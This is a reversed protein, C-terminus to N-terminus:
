LGIPNTFRHWRPLTVAVTVLRWAAPLNPEPPGHGAGEDPGSKENSGDDRPRSQGIGQESEKHHRADDDPDEGHPALVCGWQAEIAGESVNGVDGDRDHQESHAYLDARDKIQLCRGQEEVARRHQQCRPSPHPRALQERDRVRQATSVVLETTWQKEGDVRDLRRTAPRSRVLRVVAAATAETNM